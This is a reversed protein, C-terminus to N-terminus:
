RGLNLGLDALLHAISLVALSTMNWIWCGKRSLRLMDLVARSDAAFVAEAAEAARPGV